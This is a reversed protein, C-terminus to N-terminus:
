RGGPNLTAFTAGPLDAKGLLEYRAGTGRMESRYLGISQGEFAERLSAPLRPDPMNQILEPRRSEGKETRVRAVTVHPWFARQEPEHFVLGRNAFFSRLGIHLVEAEPSKAPLAFLRPRGGQPGKPVADGLQILPAPATACLGRITELYYPVDRAPRHGLFLLVVWLGANHRLAPDTLVEQRWAEVEDRVADPLDLAVFLRMKGRGPNAGGNRGTM